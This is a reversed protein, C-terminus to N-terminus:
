LITGRKVANRKAEEAAVAEEDVKPAVSLDAGNSQWSPDEGVRGFKTKKPRQRGFTIKKKKPAEPPPKVAVLLDDKPFLRGLRLPIIIADPKVEDIPATKASRKKKKKGKADPVKGGMKPIVVLQEHLISLVGFDKFRGINTDFLSMADLAWIVQQQIDSRTNFKHYAEVLLQVCGRKGLESSLVDHRAMAAIASSAKWVLQPRTRFQEFAKSLCLCGGSQLLPKMDSATRAFETWVECGSEQVKIETHYLKMHSCVTACLTQYDLKYLWALMDAESGRAKNKNSQEAADAEKNREEDQQLMRQVGSELQVEASGAQHEKLLAQNKIYELAVMLKKMERLASKAGHKTLVQLLRRSELRVEGEEHLEDIMEIVRRGGIDLIQGADEADNAAVATLTRLTARVMIEDARWMRLMDLLLELGGGAVVARCAKKRGILAFCRNGLQECADLMWDREAPVLSMQMRETMTQTSTMRMQIFHQM